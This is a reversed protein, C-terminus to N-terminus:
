RNASSRPLASAAHAEALFLCVHDNREVYGRASCGASGAPRSERREEQTWDEVERAVTQRMLVEARTAELDPATECADEEEGRPSAGEIRRRQAGRRTGGGVELVDEREQARTSPLEKM